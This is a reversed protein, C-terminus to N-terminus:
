IKGYMWYCYKNLVQVFTPFIFYFVPLSVFGCISGSHNKAKSFLVPM